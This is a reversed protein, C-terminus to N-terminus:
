GGKGGEEKEWSLRADSRGLLPNISSLHADNADDDDDTHTAPLFNTQIARLASLTFSFKGSIGKKWVRWSGPMIEAKKRM